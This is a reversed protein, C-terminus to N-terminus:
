RRHIDWRVHRKWKILPNLAPWYRCTIGNKALFRKGPTLIHGPWAAGANNGVLLLKTSSALAKSQEPTAAPIFACIVVLRSRVLTTPHMLPKPKPELWKCHHPNDLAVNWVNTICAQLRPRQM